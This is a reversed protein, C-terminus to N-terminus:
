VKIGMWRERQWIVIFILVEIINIGVWYMWLGHLGGGFHVGIIYSGPLLLGWRIIFKVIMVIRTAGAGILADMLICGIAIIWSTAVDLQFPFIAHLVTSNSHIFVGLIPVPFVAMLIGTIAITVGGVKAVDWAWKKANSPAGKGLAEGVLSMAAMGFGLGPLYLALVCTIVVHAIAVAETGIQGLVWFLCIMNTSFSLQDLSIPWGVQFLQKLVHKKVM